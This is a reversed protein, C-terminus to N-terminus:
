RYPHNPPVFDGPHQCSLSLFFEGDVILLRTNSRISAVTIYGIYEYFITAKNDLYATRYESQM